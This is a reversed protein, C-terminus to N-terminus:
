ASYHRKRQSINRSRTYQFSKCITNKLLPFLTTSWKKWPTDIFSEPNLKTVKFISSGDIVFVALDFGIGEINFKPGPSHNNTFSKHKVGFSYAPAINKRKDHM